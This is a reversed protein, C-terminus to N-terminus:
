TSEPNRQQQYADSSWYFDQASLRQAIASPLKPGLRGLKYGIYKAGVHAWAYPLLAPNNKLLMKTLAILYRKGRSMDNAGFDILDAHQKRVYGTDFHRRLEQTLSYGHSHRVVANAVYAIKHGKRLLAAATFADEATLVTPFGKVEDLASNRYAACSNSCFFTYVGYHPVDDISRIHSQAPYNFDRLFSEFVGAGKHPIQRAYSLSAQQTIIPDVLRQLTEANTAYADPTMMVVIDTNLYHRAKERTAGHNFSSRPVVLTEAGLRKAEEVTGDQSSSNVVVIRPSLPSALIPALCHKLHHRANHTIFAVGISQSM